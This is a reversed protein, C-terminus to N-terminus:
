KADKGELEIELEIDDDDDFEDVETDVYDLDEDPDEDNLDKAVLAKTEESWEFKEEKTEPFGSNYNMLQGLEGKLLALGAVSAMLMPCIYLLAPQSREFVTMMTVTIGLSLAYATMAATYYPKPFKQSMYFHTNPNREHFLWLDFRLCLSIFIGPVTMDGLGIMWKPVFPKPLKSGDLVSEDYDVMMPVEVMLPVDLRTAVAVMAESFFVFYVDYVFLLVLLLFGYKFRSISISGVGYVAVACSSLSSLLWNNPGDVRYFLWTQLAALILAYIEASSFYFNLFQDNKAVDTKAEENMAEYREQSISTHPYARLNDLGTPHVEPDLSLTLRFRSLFKVPTVRNAIKLLNRYFHQASKANYYRFFVALWYSLDKEHGSKILQYFITLSACALVFIMAVNGSDSVELEPSPLRDMDSDDYLPHGKVPDLANRPQVVGFNAGIAVVTVATLIMITFTILTPPVVNGFLDGRFVLTAVKIALSDTKEKVYDM